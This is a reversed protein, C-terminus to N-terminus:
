YMTALTYFIKKQFEKKELRKALESFMWSDPKAHGTEYSWLCLNKDFGLGTAEKTSFLESCFAEEIFIPTYFQANSVIGLALRLETIAELFLKAGPMPACRNTACEWAVCARAGDDLNMDLARAFVSPANVEPWAIGKERLEAHDANVISKLRDAMNSPFSISLGRENDADKNQYQGNTVLLSGSGIDGTESSLITGYVDVAVAMVKAPLQKNVLLEWESTLKAPAVYREASQKGRNENNFYEIGNEKINQVLERRLEKSPEFVPEM